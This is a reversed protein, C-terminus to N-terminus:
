HPSVNGSNERGRTILFEACVYRVVDTAKVNLGTKKSEEEAIKELEAWDEDCIRIGRQKM